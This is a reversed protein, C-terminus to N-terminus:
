QDVYFAPVLPCEENVTANCFRAPDAEYPTYSLVNFDTFLTTYKNNSTSLDVIKGVTSNPNTWSPSDPAPYTGVTAMGSVNGYITVNLNHASSTTNFDAWAHLPVFQLQLPDSNIVNESLCNEFNIFAAASTNVFVTLILILVALAPSTSISLPKRWARRNVSRATNPQRQAGDTATHVSAAGARDRATSHMALPLRRSSSPWSYRKLGRRRSSFHITNQIRRKERGLGTENLDNDPEPNDSCCPQHNSTTLHRM